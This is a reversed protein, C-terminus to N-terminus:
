VWSKEECCFSANFGALFITCLAFELLSSTCAEPQGRGASVCPCYKIKKLLLIHCGPLEDLGRYGQNTDSTLEMPLFHRRSQDYSRLRQNGRGLPWVSSAQSRFCVNILFWITLMFTGPTVWPGLYVFVCNDPLNNLPSLSPHRGPTVWPGTRFGKPIYLYQAAQAQQTLGKSYLM